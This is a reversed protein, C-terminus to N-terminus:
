CAGTMPQFHVPAPAAAVSAPWHSADSVALESVDSALTCVLCPFPSTTLARRGSKPLNQECGANYIMIICMALLGRRYTGRLYGLSGRQSEHDCIRASYIVYSVKGSSVTITM